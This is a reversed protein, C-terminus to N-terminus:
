NRTFVFFLPAIIYYGILAPALGVSGYKAVYLLCKLTAAPLVTTSGDHPSNTTTTDLVLWVAINLRSDSCSCTASRQRASAQLLLRRRLPADRKADSGSGVGPVRVGGEGAVAAVGDFADEHAIDRSALSVMAVDYCALM